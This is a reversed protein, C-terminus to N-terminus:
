GKGGAMWLGLTAENAQDGAVEGAVRGEFMVLIRDALTLVESLESSILLIAKGANRFQLLHDHIFEIAGIDVGRTPQEAILLQSDHSLERAIVIKQQNGGSLYAATVSPQPAKITFKQIWQQSIEWIRSFSLWGKQSFLPTAQQGMILNESIDGELALGTTSRDEPVYALGRNRREAISLHTVEEGQLAISGSTVAQLGSLAKILETQGNGAVGAIGVIEGAHVTFSVQQVASKGGPDQVTLDKIALVPKGLPQTTKTPHLAVKRGVMAQTISDATTEKTELTTIVKGARLVTAKDSLEIVENLKHTIFVVTTGQNALRRLVSFLINREHPTLVATPEDLILISAQRYLAKLIEVWQQVGVPLQGVIADPDVSLGYTEALQSVTTKAARRDIWGNRTPEKGYIINETVTLSPFLMFHQHVMGLGAEIADLPSTFHQSQENIWIEGADPAILGYLINMLTSKGAGNEGVLARIEGQPIQLDIHDNAIVNAFRKVINKLEIAIM